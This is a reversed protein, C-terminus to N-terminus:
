YALSCNHLSSIFLDFLCIFLEYQLRTTITNGQTTSTNGRTTSAIDRTTDHQLRTIINQTM